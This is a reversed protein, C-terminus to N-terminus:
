GRGKPRPDLIVLNFRLAKAREYPSEPLNLLQRWSTIIIVMIGDSFGELHDKDM